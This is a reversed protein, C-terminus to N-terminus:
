QGASDLTVVATPDLESGVALEVGAHAVLLLALEILLEAGEGPLDDAHVGVTGHWGVVREGARGDVREAKAIRLPEGEVALPSQDRGIMASVAVVLDVVNTGPR